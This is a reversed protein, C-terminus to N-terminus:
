RVIVFRDNKWVLKHITKGDEGEVIKITKGYQPAKYQFGYKRAYSNRANIKEELAEYDPLVRESIDNWTGDIYEKVSIGSTVCRPRGCYNEIHLLVPVGNAKRFLAVEYIAAKTDIKLYGNKADNVLIRADKEELIAGFETEPHVYYFGLVTRKVSFKNDKWELKYVLNDFPDNVKITTGKRPLEIKFIMKEWDPLELLGKSKALKLEEVRKPLLKETVDVMKSGVFEFAYLSTVCGPFCLTDGVIIVASRDERRFLAVESWGKYNGGVQLYGNKSDNITIKAGITNLTNIPILRYYDLVTRRDKGTQASGIGIAVILIILSSLFYKVLM